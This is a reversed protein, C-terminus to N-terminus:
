GCRCCRGGVPAVVEVIVEDRFNWLCWDLRGVNPFESIILQDSESFHLLIVRIVSSTLFSLIPLSVHKIIMVELLKLVAHQVQRIVSAPCIRWQDGTFLVGHM